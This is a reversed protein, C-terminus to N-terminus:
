CRMSLRLLDERSFLEAQARADALQSEPMGIVAPDSVGAKLVMLNRFHSLLRRCFNQLDQGIRWWRHSWTSSRAPMTAAIARVAKGLVAPEVLGLLMTVDEDRVQNGSFAIVQDLASMADRM